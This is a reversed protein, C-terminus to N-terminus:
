TAKKVPASRPNPAYNYTTLMKSLPKKWPKPEAPRYYKMTKKLYAWGSDSLGHSRNGPRLVGIITTTGVYPDQQAAAKAESVWILCGLFPMGEDHNIQSMFSLAITAGSGIATYGNEWRVEGDEAIRILIPEDDAMYVIVFEGPMKGTQIDLLTREYEGPQFYGHGKQYFESLTIGYRMSVIHEARSRRFKRVVERTSELYGGIRLDMDGPSKDITNFERIPVALAAAFENAAAEDGSILITTNPFHKLKYTDDAKVFGRTGQKDTCIVVAPGDEFTCVAAICVTVKAEWPRKRISTM